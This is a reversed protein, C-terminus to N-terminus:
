GGFVWTGTEDLYNKIIVGHVTTKLMTTKKEWASATKVAKLVRMRGEEAIALWETNSPLNKGMIESLFFAALATVPIDKANAALMIFIAGAEGIANDLLLSFGYYWSLWDASVPKKKELRTKFFGSASSFDGGATRGLIRAAGFVLAYEEVLAPKDSALRNELQLIKDFSGQVLWSQALLRVDRSSYRGQGNVKKDLYGALAPWDEKELLAFLRRNSLFFINMGALTLIIVLVIPWVMRIFEGSIGGLLVAPFIVAALLFFVILINFIVIRINM